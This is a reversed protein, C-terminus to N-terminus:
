ENERLLLNQHFAYFYIGLTGIVWQLKFFYKTTLAIFDQIILLTFGRPFDQEGYFAMFSNAYTCIKNKTINKWKESGVM